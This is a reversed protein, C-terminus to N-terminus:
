RMRRLLVRPLMGLYFWSQRFRGAPFLIASRILLAAALAARLLLLDSPRSRKRFYRIVSELFHSQARQWDQRSSGGALHVMKADPYFIIKWGARVLRECLDVDEMYLFFQPDFGGIQDLASRRFLLAAGMPQEVELMRDHQVTEWRYSSHFIRDLFSLYLFLRGITPFTRISPQIKGDPFLLQPAVAAAEPRATLCQELQDLAGPRAEIDVNMVLVFPSHTEAIGQNAATGFGLNVPNYITKISPFRALIDRSGDSSDNDVVVAEAPNSDLVSSLLRQLFAAGNWNVMVVATQRAM